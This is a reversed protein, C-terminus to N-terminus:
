HLERYWRLLCSVMQGRLNLNLAKARVEVTMLDAALRALEEGETEDETEGAMSIAVAATSALPPVAKPVADPLRLLQRTEGALGARLASRILENLEDLREGTLSAAALEPLDAGAAQMNAVAVAGPLALQQCRSRVTPLVATPNDALLIFVVHEPPEELVKLFANSAEDGFKGAEVGDLIWVRRLGEYPRGPADDVIKRVQKITIIQAAGMPLVATVDPHVGDRIRKACGNENWPEASEDCVLLAAAEVAALERGLGAPGILLLAHPLRDRDRAHQLRQLAPTVIDKWKKRSLVRRSWWLEPNASM